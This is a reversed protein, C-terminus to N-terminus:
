RRAPCSRPRRSGCQRTTLPPDPFVPLILQSIEECRDRGAARLIAFTLGPCLSPPWSGAQACRQLRRPLADEVPMHHLVTISITADYRSAPRPKRRVEAVICIVNAPVPRGAKEIM